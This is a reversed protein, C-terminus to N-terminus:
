KKIIKGSKLVKVKDKIQYFYIGKYKNIPAEWLYNYIKNDSHITHIKKGLMNYIEITYFGDLSQFYLQKSMPNPYIKFDKEAKADYKLVAKYHVNSSKMPNSKNEWKGNILKEFDPIKGILKTNMNIDGDKVLLQVQNNSDITFLDSQGNYNLDNVYFDQVTNLDINTKVTKIASYFSDNTMNFKYLHLKKSPEHYAILDDSNSNTWNGVLFKTYNSWGTSVVSHNAYFSSNDPNYKYLHLQKTPEHYAILDDTEKLTWNGIIYKTYNSWGTGVIKYNAYFRNENPNYKYLHLQKTPQHYAILDDTNKGKTWNGVLFETYNSWGTSVVEYNAYFGSGDAKYKYLHLEKTPEHYAILDDTGNNTWNGVLFRTYNSWGSSIKNFTDVCNNYKILNQESNLYLYNHNGVDTLSKVEKNTSPFFTPYFQLLNKSKSPNYLDLQRKDLTNCNIYHSGYYQDVHEKITINNDDYKEVMRYLSERILEIKSNYLSWFSFGGEMASMSYFYPAYGDGPLKTGTTDKRYIRNYRHWGNAGNFYNSFLPFNHDGNFINNAFQNSLSEMINLDPFDQNSLNKNYCNKNRYLSEFTHVWKRAHSLDITIKNDTGSEILGCPDESENYAYQYDLHEKWYGSDMVLGGNNTYSLRSEISQSGKDIFQVLSNKIEESISINSALIDSVGGVMSMLHGRIAKCYSKRSDWNNTKIKDFLDIASYCGYPPSDCAWEEGSFTNPINLWRDYHDIVINLNKEKLLEVINIYHKRETDPIQSAYLIARSIIQLFNSSNLLHENEQHLWMPRNRSFQYECSLIKNTDKKGLHTFTKLYVGILDNMLTYNQENHTYILLNITEYGLDYLIETNGASLKDNIDKEYGNKLNNWILHLENEIAVIDQSYSNPYLLVTILVTFIIKKM